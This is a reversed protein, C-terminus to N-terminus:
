VLTQNCELKSFLKSVNERFKKEAKKDNAKDKNVLTSSSPNTTSYVKVDNNLKALLCLLLEHEDNLQWYYLSYSKKTWLNKRNDRNM